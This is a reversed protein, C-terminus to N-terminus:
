AGRPITAAFVHESGWLRRRLELRRVGPRLIVEGGVVLGGGDRHVAEIVKPASIASLEALVLVYNDAWLRYTQCQVLARRWDNVKMEIAFLRGIPQLALERTVAGSSTVSLAGQRLLHPIRREVSTVAWGLRSAISNPSMARTSSATAVIGADLENLLPAVGARRRLMMRSREGVVAVVDPVGFPGVVERLALLGKDSGPLTTLVRRVAPELRREAVPEFMRGARPRRTRQLSTAAPM